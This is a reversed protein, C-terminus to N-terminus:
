KACGSVSAAAVYGARQMHLDSVVQEQAAIDRDLRALASALMSSFIRRNREMRRQDVDSM